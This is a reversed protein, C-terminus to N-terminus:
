SFLHAAISFWLFSAIMSFLNVIAAVVLIHVVKNRFFADFSDIEALEEIDKISPPKEHAEVLAAFWGAALLPHLSTFPAAIFATVVSKWRARAIIAGLAAFTSNLLFWSWLGRILFEPGRIFFGIVFLLIALVPLIYRLAFLKQRKRPTTLLKRINISKNLNRVIGDVHGAGVVAVIRKANIKRLKAAIYADREDILIKKVSPFEKALEKLVSDIVSSSKLKEIDEKAFNSDFGFAFLLIQYLLKFKELFSMSASLRAITINLPRDVLAIPINHTKAEQSAVIMEAGPKIGLERGLRRQILSLVILALTEYAKGSRIIEAINLERLTQGEVLQSYRAKDLELAVCEPAEERIIQRVEEISKDSIHATGVIIIEKGDLVVKKKM